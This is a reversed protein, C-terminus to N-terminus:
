ASSAGEQVMSSPVFVFKLDSSRPQPPLRGPKYSMFKSGRVSDAITKRLREAVAHTFQGGAVEKARELDEQSGLADCTPCRASGDSWLNVPVRCKSCILTLEM